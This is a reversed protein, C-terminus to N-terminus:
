SNVNKEILAGIAFYFLVVFGCLLFYFYFLMDNRSILKCM